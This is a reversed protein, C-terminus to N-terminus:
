SSKGVSTTRRVAASLLYVGDGCLRFYPEGRDVGGEVRSLFLLGNRELLAAFKEFVFFRASDTLYIMLNRCFIADFAGGADCAPWQSATLDMPAFRLHSRLADTVQWHLKGRELYRDRLEHPLQALVEERYQGRVADQLALTDIDTALLEIRANVGSLREAEAAVMAMSWAEEGSACAASWLRLRPATDGAKVRARLTTLLHELLIQFHEPERWFYTYNVALANRLEQIAAADGQESKKVLRELGETGHSDIYGALRRRLYDDREGAAPLGSARAIVSAVRGIRLLLDDQLRSSFPLTM